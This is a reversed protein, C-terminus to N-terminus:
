LNKVAEAVSEKSWDASYYWEVAKMVGDYKILFDEKKQRMKELEKIFDNFKKSIEYFGMESLARSMSELDEIRHDLDDPSVNHLYNFSGGSM